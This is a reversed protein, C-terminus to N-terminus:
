GFSHNDWLCTCYHVYCTGGGGLPLLVLPPAPCLPRAPLNTLIIQIQHWSICRPSGCGHADWHAVPADSLSFASYLLTTGHENVQRCLTMESICLHTAHTPALVAFRRHPLTQHGHGIGHGAAAPASADWPGSAAEQGSRGQGGRKQRPPLANSPPPHYKVAGKAGGRGRGEAAIRQDRRERPTCEGAAEKGARARGAGNGGLPCPVPLTHKKACPPQGGLENRLAAM